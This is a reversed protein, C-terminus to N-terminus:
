RMAQRSFCGRSRPACPDDDDVIHILTDPEENMAAGRAGSGREPVQRPMRRTSLRSARRRPTRAPGPCGSPSCAAAGRERTPGVHGGHANVVTRVISLGLGMGHPKTTFFSEFLKTREDEGFGHGRDAVQLEHGQGAARLSVTLARADGATDHMADMANLALNLLM